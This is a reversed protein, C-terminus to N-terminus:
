SFLVKQSSQFQQQLDLICRDREGLAARLERERAKGSAVAADQASRLDKFASIEDKMKRIQMGFSIEGGQHQM